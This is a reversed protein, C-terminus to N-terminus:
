TWCFQNTHDQHCKTVGWGLFGSANEHVKAADQHIRTDGCQFQFHCRCVQIFKMAKQHLGISSLHSGWLVGLRLQSMLRHHFSQTSGIDLHIHLAYWGPWTAISIMNFEDVILWQGDITFIFMNRLDFEYNVFWVSRILLRLDYDLSWPRAHM